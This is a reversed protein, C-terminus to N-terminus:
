AAPKGIPMIYVPLEGRLGLLELVKQDIFAGVMVTGLGMSQAMLHVNQGMHGADMSVYRIAGREGYRRMTKSHIATIVLSAPADAIMSQGLAAKALASRFDGEKRLRLTHKKWDYYYIGPDIEEVNGVVVYVELPYIGGASPYARTPGTIGDITAGGAGWLLQALEDATLPTDQFDRVSRRGQIAEEVSIGGTKRPSPLLIINPAEELQAFTFGAFTAALFVAVIFIRISRFFM